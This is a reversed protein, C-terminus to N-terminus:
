KTKVEEESNEKENSKEQSSKENRLTIRLGHQRVGKRAEHQLCLMDM